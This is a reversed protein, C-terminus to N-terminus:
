ANRLIASLGYTADYKPPELNVDWRLSQHNQYFIKTAKRFGKMCINTNDLIISGGSVEADM